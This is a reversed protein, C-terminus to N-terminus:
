FRETPRFTRGCTVDGDPGLCGIPRVLYVLEREVLLAAFVARLMPVSAIYRM